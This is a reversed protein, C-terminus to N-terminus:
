GNRMLLTTVRATYVLGAKQLARAKKADMKGTEDECCIITSIVRDIDHNHLVADSRQMAQCNWLSKFDPCASVSFWSVM